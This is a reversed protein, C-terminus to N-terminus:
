LYDLSKLNKLCTRQSRYRISLIELGDRVLPTFIASTLICKMMWVNVNLAEM